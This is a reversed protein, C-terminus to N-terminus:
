GLGAGGEGYQSRYIAQYLESTRLLEEHTGEAQLRGEDLLLVYDAELTTSMKQTVMITTCRYRRLAELLRKETKVDLASTSDDLLLVAPRRLLARAISLRQKQGGSLNVGRQGVRTDLGDPLEQITDHIQADKLVQEMEERTAGERGWQLNETITGTFLMAEQPVYGIQTRLSRRKLDPLKRGDMRVEGATPDHLRPLLQVLSTKGSGAAGLVAIREGPDARFSIDTLAEQEIGPYQFSVGRFEVEGQLMPAEDRGDEMEDEAQLVDSVRDASAKARSFIIVIMSFISLAGTMRTIYNIVAVVEGVSMGGTNVGATGFWLVAMISGNMLLLVLPMSVEVLRMTKVTSSQLDASAEHFRSSEYPRRAFAKVLRIATLNEQATNNVADVRQQVRKFMGAAKKMIWVLLGALLPVTVALVLALQWQVFFAMVLSGVVLLPARLIIRLSMFITNKLQNIDNTVRTLLSATPFQQFQQFSFTQVRSFVDSRLQRGTHQSAYSAYFSNIIGAAFAVFSLALMVGGWFLVVSMDEMMIGEDIIRAILLPQVLEVTLEVLTLFLAAGVAIKYKKLYSWLLVM